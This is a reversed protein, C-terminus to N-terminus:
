LLNLNRLQKRSRNILESIYHLKGKLESIEEISYFERNEKLDNLTTSHELELEKFQNFNIFVQNDYVQYYNGKNFLSYYRNGCVLYYWGNNKTFYYQLNETELLLNFDSTSIYKTDNKSTKILNIMVDLNVLITKEKM